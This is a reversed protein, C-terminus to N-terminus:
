KEAPHEGRFRPHDTASRHPSMAADTSGAFAPIIRQGDRRLPLIDPAGRSLPSSGWVRGGPGACGAHEGRFRPHDRFTRKRWSSATTSGAFAPIIGHPLGPRAVAAPAGRSLPSSGLKAHGKYSIILHEGRFRPHDSRRSRRRSSTATSGAFAPIIGGGGPFGVWVWRAGRSLPSSGSPRIPPMLLMPHEGRFRPHDRAHTASMSGPGTSGAFAPIIGVAFEQVGDRVRAGRSLPSSGWKIRTALM